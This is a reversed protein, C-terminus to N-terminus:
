NAAAAARADCARASWARASKAARTSRARTRNALRQPPPRGTQQTANAHIQRSKPKFPVRQM